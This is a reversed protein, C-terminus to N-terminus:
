ASVVSSGCFIFFYAVSDIPVTVVCQILHASEPWDAASYTRFHCLANCASCIVSAPGLLSEGSEVNWPVPVLSPSIITMRVIRTVCICAMNYHLRQLFSWFAGFIDARRQPFLKLYCSFVVIFYLTVRRKCCTGVILTSAFDQRHWALKAGQGGRTRIGRQM